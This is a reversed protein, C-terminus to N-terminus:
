STDAVLAASCGFLVMHGIMVCPQTFHYIALFMMAYSYSSLRRITLTMSTVNHAFIMYKLARPPFHHQLHMPLARKGMKPPGSLLCFHQKHLLDVAQLYPSTAVFLAIEKQATLLFELSRQHLGWQVLEKLQSLGLIQPFAYVVRPYSDLLEDIDREGLFAFNRIMPFDNSALSKMEDKEIRTFPCNTLFVYNDCDFEHKETIKALEDSLSAKLESRVTDAGRSSYTRHKVQFIWNGKWPDTKSPFANAGGEFTADRGQDISGSFTSLGSGILERLLTRVLQEFNFWGLQELKYKSTGM